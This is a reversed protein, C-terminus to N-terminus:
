SSFSIVLLCFFMTLFDLNQSNTTRGSGNLGRVLYDNCNRKLDNELMDFMNKSYIEDICFNDKLNVLKLKSLHIFNIAGVFAIKNKELNIIEVDVLAKFIEPHLVQLMNDELYLSKLVKQTTFTNDRLIAIRNFSLILQELNILDAFANKAVNEIKNHALNLYKMSRLGIFCNKCISKVSCNQVTVRLLGPFTLHLNSPLFNISLNNEIVLAAITANTPRTIQYEEDVGTLSPECTELTQTKDSFDWLRLFTKCSVM